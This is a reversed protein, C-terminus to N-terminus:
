LSFLDNEEHKIRLYHEEKNFDKRKIDQITGKTHQREPPEGDIEYPYRFDLDVCIPGISLYQKETLFEQMIIKNGDFTQKYYEEYFEKIDDDSIFYKGGYVIPTEGKQSGIRTHTHVRKATSYKLLINNFHVM